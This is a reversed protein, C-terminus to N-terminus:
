PDTNPSSIMNLNVTLALFKALSMGMKSEFGARMAKHIPLFKFANLAILESFHHAFQRGEYISPFDLRLGAV